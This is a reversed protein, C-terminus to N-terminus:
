GGRKYEMNKIVIEVVKTATCQVHLVGEEDLGVYKYGEVPEYKPLHKSEVVHIGRKRRGNRSVPRRCMWCGTDLMWYGTDLIWYGADLM